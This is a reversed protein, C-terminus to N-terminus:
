FKVIYTPNIDIMASNATCWNQLIETNETNVPISPFSIPLSSDRAALALEQIAGLVDVIEDFERYGEIVVEAPTAVVCKDKVMIKFKGSLDAYLPLNVDRAVCLANHLQYQLKNPDETKWKHSKTPSLRLEDLFPKVRQIAKVSRIYAM